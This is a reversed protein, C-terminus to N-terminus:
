PMTWTSCDTATNPAFLSTNWTTGSLVLKTVCFRVQQGTSVTLSTSFAATGATGATGTKVTKTSTKTGVTWAGTVSAGNVSANLNDRVTVGASLTAKTTGTKTGTLTLAAIDITRPPATVTITRTASVQNGDNDTVTLTATYTGPTAYTYSPDALTSTGGNGFTWAYSTITGDTDTSGSGTFTVPLPAVGSTPTATITATPPNGIPVTVTGSLRYNGVSGYDSYGTNLANGASVGDILLTYTGAALNTSIAAGMGTSLDSSTSGSAPDSSALLTGASNRLELKIDLNPSVPAPDVTISVPGPYAATFKFADVDTRTSIVGDTGFAGGTVTLTTAASATNGHDDTRLPLGYSVAVAFDDQTNNASTYEGKSWQSIAKYYGVGMIPAWDGHGSYYSYGTTTGDHRLGINHGVEHSAAEAIYKSWCCVGNQFVFAPQYYQSGTTNFVGIYAIGGCGNSCLTGWLTSTTSECPTNGPTILVRTGFDLDSSTTRDIAAAGPDQTTVNVDFPAYDEAVRRWTDIVDYRESDSFTSPDSDTDYATAVCTPLGYSANWQTGSVTGGDFDLYIVRSSGPKSQLTFADAPQISNDFPTAAAAVGGPVVPEVYLLKDSGDVKLTPDTLLQNSLQATSMRYAAAVTALRGGLQEIAAQGGKGGGPAPAEAPQSTASATGASVVGILLVAAALATWLRRFGRSAPYM